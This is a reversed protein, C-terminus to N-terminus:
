QTRTLLTLQSTRQPFPLSPPHTQDRLHFSLYTCPCVLLYPRSMAIARAWTWRGWDLLRLVSEQGKEGQQSQSLTLAARLSELEARFAARCETVDDHLPSPALLPLLDDWLVPLHMEGRRPLVQLYPWWEGEEGKAAEALLRLALRGYCDLDAAEAAAALAPPLTTTSTLLLPSPVALVIQEKEIPRTTTLTISRSHPDLHLAVPAQSLDLGGKSRLWAAFARHHPTSSRDLKHIAPDARDIRNIRHPEGSRRPRASAPSSVM